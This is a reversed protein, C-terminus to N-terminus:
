RAITRRVIVRSPRDDTGCDSSSGGFYTSYVIAGNRNFKTVFGDTGQPQPAASRTTSRSLTSSAACM